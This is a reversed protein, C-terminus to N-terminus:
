PTRSTSGARSRFWARIATPPHVTGAQATTTGIRATFQFGWRRQTPDSVQVQIRQTVGPTYTSVRRLSKSAGRGSNLTGTHCATCNREGPVGAHMPDAGDSNASLVFPLMVLADTLGSTFLKRRVTM